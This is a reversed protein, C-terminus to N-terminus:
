ILEVDPEIDGNDVAEMYEQDRKFNEELDKVIGEIENAMSAVFTEKDIGNEGLERLAKGMKDSMDLGTEKYSLIQFHRVGIEGSIVWTDSHPTARLKKYENIKSFDINNNYRDKLDTFNIKADIKPFSIQTNTISMEKFADPVGKVTISLVVDKGLLSVLSSLQESNEQIITFFKSVNENYSRRSDRKLENWQDFMDKIADTNIQLKGNTVTSFKNEM